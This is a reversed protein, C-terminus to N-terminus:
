SEENKETYEDLVYGLHEYLRGYKEAVKINNAVAEMYGMSLRKEERAISLLQDLHKQAAELLSIATDMSETMNDIVVKELSVREEHQPQTM